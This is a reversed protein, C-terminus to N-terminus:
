VLSSLMTWIINMLVKMKEPFHEIFTDPHDLYGECEIEYELRACLKHEDYTLEICGKNDFQVNLVRLQESATM